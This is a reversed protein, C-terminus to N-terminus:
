PAGTVPNWQASLATDSTTSGPAATPACAVTRVSGIGPANSTSDETLVTADLAGARTTMRRDESVRRNRNSTEPETRM